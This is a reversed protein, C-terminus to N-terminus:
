LRHVSVFHGVGHIKIGHQIPYSRLRERALFVRKQAIGSIKVDLAGAIDRQIARRRLLVNALPNYFTHLVFGPQIFYVADHRKVLNRVSPVVARLFGIEPLDEHLQDKGAVPHLLGGVQLCFAQFWHPKLSKRHTRRVRQSLASVFTKPFSSHTCSSARLRYPRRLLGYEAMFFLCAFAHRKKIASHSPNSGEPREVRGCSKWDHENHGSRYWELYRSDCSLNRYAGFLKTIM